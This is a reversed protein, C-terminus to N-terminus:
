AQWKSLQGVKKVYGQILEPTPVLEASLCEELQLKGPACVSQSREARCAGCFSLSFPTKAASVTLRGTLPPSMCGCM